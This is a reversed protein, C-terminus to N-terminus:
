LGMKIRLEELTYRRGKGEEINKLGREIIADLEEPTIYYPDDKKGRLDRKARQMSSRVKKEKVVNSM